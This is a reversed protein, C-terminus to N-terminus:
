EGNGKNLSKFEIEIHAKAVENFPIIADDIAVGSEVLEGIRGKVLVGNHLVVTVLRGHNKRWHRPLTLPRDIGPSTVELTFPTEGLEPLNELVESINKTVSTVQDLNLHSDSDIIVTLITPEGGSLLVEELFIGEGEILPAISKSVVEIVGV